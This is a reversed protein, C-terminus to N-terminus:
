CPGSYGIKVSQVSSDETDIDYIQQSMRSLQSDVNILDRLSNVLLVNICLSLKRTNKKCVQRTLSKYPEM